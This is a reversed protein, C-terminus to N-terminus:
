HLLTRDPAGHATLDIEHAHAQARSVDLQPIHLQRHYGPNHSSNTSSFVLNNVQLTFPHIMCAVSCHHSPLSRSKITTLNGLLKDTCAGIMFLGLLLTIQYGSANCADKVVLVASSIVTGSGIMEFIIRIAKLNRSLDELLMLSKSHGNLTQM